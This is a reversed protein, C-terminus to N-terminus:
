VHVYFFNGPLQCTDFGFYVQAVTLLGSVPTLLTRWSRRQIFECVALSPWLDLNKYGFVSCKRTKVRRWLRSIDWGFVWTGGRGGEQVEWGMVQTPM